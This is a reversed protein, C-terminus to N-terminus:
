KKMKYRKQKQLYIKNAKDIIEKLERADEKFSTGDPYKQAMKKLRIYSNYIDSMGRYEDTHSIIYDDRKDKIHINKIGNARLDREFDSKTKYDNFTYQRFQGNENRGYARLEPNGTPKKFGVTKRELPYDNTVSIELQDLVDKRTKGEVYNGYDSSWGKPLDLMWRGDAGKYIKKKLDAKTINAAKKFIPIRRGGLTVWKEIERRNEVGDRYAM